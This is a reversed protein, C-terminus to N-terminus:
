LVLELEYKADTGWRYYYLNNDDHKWQVLCDFKIQDSCKVITGVGLKHNGYYWDPGPKVQAGILDCVNVHDVSVIFSVVSKPSLNSTLEFTYKGPVAPTFELEVQDYSAVVSCSSSTLSKNRSYKCEWKETNSLPEHHYVFKTEKCLKATFTQLSTGKLFAINEVISLAGLSSLNLESSKKFEISPTATSYIVSLDVDTSNLERLCYLLQNMFSLMQGESGQKQYRESFTRCGKVKCLMIELHDKTVWITKSDETFKSEVQKLLEEKMAQIKTICEDCVANIDAEVKDRKNYVQKEFKEVFALGSKLIKEKNEIDNTMSKIREMLEDQVNNFFDYSHGKHTSELMCMSCVLIDCTKCFIELEYKPHCSCLAPQKLPSADLSKIKHTVFLKVKKHVIDQCCECMYEGCDQCYGVAVEGSTCLGCIKTEENKTIDAKAAELEPLISIDYLFNTVDRKPIEHRARCQPCTLVSKRDSVLGQLCKLCYTHFCPLVRPDSFLELCVSCKLSVPVVASFLSTAMNLFSHGVNNKKEVHM